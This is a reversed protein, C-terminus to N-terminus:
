KSLQERIVVRLKLIIFFERHLKQAQFAFILKAFNLTQNKSLFIFPREYDLM